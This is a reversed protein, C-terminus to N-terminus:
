FLTIQNESRNRLVLVKQQDSFKILADPLKQLVICSYNYFYAINEDSSAKESCISAIVMQIKELEIDIQELNVHSVINKYARERRQKKQYYVKQQYKEDEPQPIEYQNCAIVGDIHLQAYSVGEKACVLDLTNNESLFASSNILKSLSTDMNGYVMFINSIKELVIIEYFEELKEQLMSLAINALTIDCRCDKNLASNEIFSNFISKLADAKKLSELIGYRKILKIILKNRFLTISPNTIDDELEVITSRFDVKDKIEDNNLSSFKNLDEELLLKGIINLFLIHATVM